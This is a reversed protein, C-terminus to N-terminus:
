AVLQQVYMYKYTHPRTLYKAQFIFFRLNKILKNKQRLSELVKKVRGLFKQLNKFAAIPRM